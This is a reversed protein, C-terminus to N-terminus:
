YKKHIENTQTQSDALKPTASKHTLQAIIKDMMAFLVEVNYGTLFSIAFGSFVIGTQTDSTIFWSVTLGALAGTPIRLRYNIEVNSHYTLNQIDNSLTRLVFFIAGLLGYLLPLIYKELATIAYEAAFTNLFFRNRTTDHKEQLQSEKLEQNLELIKQHIEDIAQQNAQQPDSKLQKLKQEQIEIQKNLKEYKTQYETERFERMKGQFEEKWLLTLWINNWSTLLEYNADQKQEVEQHHAKLLKLDKDTEEHKETLNKLTKVEQINAEIEEKKDFLETSKLQATMGVILYIQVILLIVLSIVALIRYHSVAKDAESPLRKGNKYHPKVSSISQITVPKIIHTVKTMSRWFATELEPTWQKAEYSFKSNVLVSIDEDDILIGKEAVYELLLQSDNIAVSINNNATNNTNATNSSSQTQKSQMLQNEEILPALLQM